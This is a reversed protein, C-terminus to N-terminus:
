RGSSLARELGALQRKVATTSKQLNAQGAPELYGLQSAIRTLTELENASGGAVRLFRIFDRDSKRGAGEAINASVSVAARRMQSTLGYRESKPFPASVSYCM